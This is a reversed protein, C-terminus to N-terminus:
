PRLRSRTEPSFTASIYKVLHPHSLPILKRRIYTVIQKCIRINPETMDEESLEIRKLIFHEGSARDICNFVFVKDSQFLSKITDLEGWVKTASTTKALLEPVKKVPSLGSFKIDNVESLRLFEDGEPMPSARSKAPSVFSSNALSVSKLEKDKQGGTTKQNGGAGQKLLGQLLFGAAPNGGPKSAAKKAPTDSLVARQRHEAASKCCGIGM